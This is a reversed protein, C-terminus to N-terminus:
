RHVTVGSLEEGHRGYCHSRVVSFSGNASSTVQVASGGIAVDKDAIFSAAVKDGQRLWRGTVGAAFDVSAITTTGDTLLVECGRASTSSVQLGTHQDPKGSCGGLTLALALVAITTGSARESRQGRAREIGRRATM